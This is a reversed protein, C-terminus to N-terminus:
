DIFAWIKKKDYVVKVKVFTEASRYSADLKMRHGIFAVLDWM